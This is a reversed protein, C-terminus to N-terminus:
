RERRLYKSEKVREEFGKVMKVGQSGRGNKYKYWSQLNMWIYIYIFWMIFPCDLDKVWLSKHTIKKKKKYLSYHSPTKYM